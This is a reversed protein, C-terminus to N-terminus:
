RPYSLNGQHRGCGNCVCRNINDREETNSIQVALDLASAASVSPDLSHSAGDARHTSWALNGGFHFNFVFDIDVGFLLNEVSDGVGVGAQSSACM